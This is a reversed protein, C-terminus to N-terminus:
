TIRAKRVRELLEIQVGLQQEADFYAYQGEGM